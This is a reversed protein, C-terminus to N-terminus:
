FQRPLNSPHGRPDDAPPLQPRLGDSLARRLHVELEDSSGKLLYGVAGAEMAKRRLFEDDYSTLMLCRIHPHTIRLSQVLDIGTPGDGLGIDVLALHPDAEPILALAESVSGAVGCVTLGSWSEILETLLERLIPTDDIIFVRHM